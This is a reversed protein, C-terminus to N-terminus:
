FKSGLKRKDCNNRMLRADSSGSSMACYRYLEDLITYTTMWTRWFSSGILFSSPLPLSSLERACLVPKCRACFCVLVRHIEVAITQRSVCVWVYTGASPVRCVKIRKQVVHNKRCRKIWLQSTNRKTRRPPWKSCVGNYAETSELM